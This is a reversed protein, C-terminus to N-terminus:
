DGPLCGLRALAPACRDEHPTHSRWWGAYDSLFCGILEAGVNPMVVAHAKGRDCPLQYKRVIEESPAPFVVTLSFPNRLTPVGLYQLEAALHKARSLCGVVDSRFGGTGHAAIRNWIALVAHGNRSGMLTTDNSRLYSIAAAVRDVHKRRAILIGCPMPTGVMKHGSTSLSDIPMRFSPRVSDPVERAFPLVMANLAGDVHVFRRDEGYGARTMAAIAGAIDDHAGKMTTGCTLALVVPREDLGALVEELHETRIAGNPRCRVSRAEMRLIRGAKPISYHAEDSHVLVPDPLAERGLYIAWLNGETGSAGVSGWFAGDDCEWLREFWSVVRRELACVEAGYHSGAYPDGLNNVLYGSFRELGETSFALNYPYGMHNECAIRIRGAEIRLTEEGEPPIPVISDTLEIRANQM